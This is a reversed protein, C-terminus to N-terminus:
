HRVSNEKSPSPAVPPTEPNPSTVVPNSGDKVFDGGLSFYLEKAEKKKKVSVIYLKGEQGDIMEYKGVKFGNYTKTIYDTIKVPIYQIPMEYKTSLKNGMMQYVVETKMDNILFNAKYTEDKKEWTADKIDKYLINYTAKVGDPVDKFEVKQAFMSLPVAFLIALVIKKM